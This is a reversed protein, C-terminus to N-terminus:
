KYIFYLLQQRYQHCLLSKSLKILLCASLSTRGSSLVFYFVINVIICIFLSFMYNLIYHLLDVYVICTVVELLNICSSLVMNCVCSLGAFSNCIVYFMFANNYLMIILIRRAYMKVSHYSIVIFM